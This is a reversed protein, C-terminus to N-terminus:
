VRRAMTAGCRRCEVKETGGRAGFEFARDIVRFDHFGFWCLVRDILPPLKPMNYAKRACTDTARSENLCPGKGTGDYLGCLGLMHSPSSPVPAIQPSRL